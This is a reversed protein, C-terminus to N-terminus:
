ATSLRRTHLLKRPTSTEMSKRGPELSTLFRKMRRLMSQYGLSSPAAMTWSITSPASIAVLSGKASM